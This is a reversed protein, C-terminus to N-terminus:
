LMASCLAAPTGAGCSQPSCCRMCGVDVHEGQLLSPCALLLQALAHGADWTLLGTNVETNKLERPLGAM